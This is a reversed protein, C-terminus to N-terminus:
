LLIINKEIFWAFSGHFWSPPVNVSQASNKVPTLLCKSGPGVSLIYKSNLIIEALIIFELPKKNSRRTARTISTCGSKWTQRLEWDADAPPGGHRTSKTKGPLLCVGWQALSCVIAFLWFWVFCCAKLWVEFSLIVTKLPPLFRNHMPQITNVGGAGFNIHQYESGPYM